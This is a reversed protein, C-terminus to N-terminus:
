SSIVRHIASAVTSSFGEPNDGMMDHGSNPVVAVQIGQDRLAAEDPDPLSDSGFIYTIPIPLGALIERYTPLRDAILSVASRHVALPDAARLSHAYDRAGAELMSAMFQAYGREIFDAESFSTIIRSVLGPGPDLNGEAVVLSRVLDRRGQALLIAIPGGMSHGVVICDKLHLAELLHAVIRAHAEMTYSFTEPRDSYGYGLLDILLSRHERLGAYTACYPFWSSSAAGLGHIYVIAPSIGPLDHYCVDAAVDPILHTKV